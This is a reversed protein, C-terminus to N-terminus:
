KIKNVHFKYKGKEDIVLMTSPAYVPIMIENILDMIKKDNLIQMQGHPKAHIQGIYHLMGTLNKIEKFKKEIEAFDIGYIEKKLDIADISHELFDVVYINKYKYDICGVLAGCSENQSSKKIFELIKKVFHEDTIICWEGIKEKIPKHPNIDLRKTELTEDSTQFITISSKEENIVDRLRRCFNSSHLIIKDHPILHNYSCEIWHMGSYRGTEYLKGFGYLDIKKEYAYRYFQMELSDLSTECNKDEALIILHDGCETLFSSIKRTEKKIKETLFRQVPIQASTDIILDSEKLKEITYEENKGLSLINEHFFYIGEFFNRGCNIERIYNYAALSKQDKDKIPFAHNISDTEKLKVQDILCWYDGFGSKAFNSYIHSGLAGLGVLSIIAKGKVQEMMENLCLKQSCSGNRDPLCKEPIKGKAYAMLWDRILEIFLWPGMMVTHNRLEERLPIIYPGDKETCYMKHRPFDKRLALTETWEYISDGNNNTRKFIVALRENDLVPNKRVQDLSLEVEFTIAVREGKDISSCELLEVYKLNLDIAKVIDHLDSKSDFFINNKYDIEQWGLEFFEM